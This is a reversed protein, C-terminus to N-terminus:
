GEMIQRITEIVVAEAFADKPVYDVAGAELGTLADVASDRTTLMIIPIEATTGDAKLAKAVQFGNLTPLQIDLVVVHPKERKAMNVGEQGDAAWSVQWGQDELALRLKQAQVPSDEVILVRTKMM